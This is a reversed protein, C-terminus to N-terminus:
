NFFKGVKNIASPLAFVVVKDNHKIHTDGKAIFGSKGRIVGGILSDKPFKIEKLPGKTILSDPRAIFELVEADTGPLCSISSVESSTTFSFIRSATILKKNIVTDVGINEVLPIYDMNEIEAITKKVGMRKALLCSLINTEAHGTVAVFADMNQLGEETLLEINRGDGNIILTNDLQNSLEISKDKDIEILKVNHQRDVEAATKKGIRSGGLIMIDHATTNDKGAYKLLDPVGAQNTIVYVLDNPLFVDKGRPIITENNRTIAVARFELNEFGEVAEILTKNVVPANEELKVVMLTLKGGGFEVMDSIGTQHLLGIIMRAAIREPNIMYDVGLNTFYTKNTPLLFETTDIRAITKEAGLKKGLISTLINIDESQTVALMLDIQKFNIEKLLSISTSSGNLALVDYTTNIYQLHEENTDIVVINHNENSLMKILHTGVEGAGAIIINM